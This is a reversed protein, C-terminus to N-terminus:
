RPQARAARGHSRRWEWPAIPAPDAWLGIGRQRAEREAAAYARRVAGPQEDAYARYHWALGARLQELGCDRRGAMLRGLTRGHRDIGTVEVRAVQGAVCTRLAARAGAGHRQQREPADIGALRLEMRRGDNQM